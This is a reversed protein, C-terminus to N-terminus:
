HFLVNGGKFFCKVAEWIMAKQIYSHTFQNLARRKSEDEFIIGALKKRDLRGDSQLIDDGFHEVILGLAPRGPEVM